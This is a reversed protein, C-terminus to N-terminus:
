DFCKFARMCPPQMRASSRNSRNCAAYTVVTIDSDKAYNDVLAQLTINYKKRKDHHVVLTVHDEDNETDPMCVIVYRAISDRREVIGEGVEFGKDKAINGLSDPHMGLAGLDQSAATTAITKGNAGLTRMVGDFREVMIDNM